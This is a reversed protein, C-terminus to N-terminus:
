HTISPGPNHSKHHLYHVNKYLWPVHLLRHTWYFHTEAVISLLTFAAALTIWCAYGDAEDWNNVFMPTGPAPARLLDIDVLPLM